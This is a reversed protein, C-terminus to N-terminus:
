PPLASFGVRYVRTRDVPLRGELLLYLGAGLTALLTIGALRGM